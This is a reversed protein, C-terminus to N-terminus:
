TTRTRRSRALAHTFSGTLMEVWKRRRIGGRDSDSIAWRAANGITTQMSLVGGGTIHCITGDPAFGKKLMVRAADYFPQRSACVLEGDVYAEFVGDRKPRERVHIEIVM